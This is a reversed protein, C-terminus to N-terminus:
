PLSKNKMQSIDAEETTARPQGQASRMMKQLDELTKPEKASIVQQLNSRLGKIIAQVVIEEKVDAERAPSRMRIIYDTPQEEPQQQPMFLETLRDLKQSPSMAYHDEFSGKLLDWTVKNEPSLNYFWDRATGRLTLGFCVAKQEANMQVLTSYAEFDATFRKADGQGDFEPMQVPIRSAMSTRSQINDSQSQTIVGIINGPLPM